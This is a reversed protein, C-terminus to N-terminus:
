HTTIPCLDLLIEQAGSGAAVIERIPTDANASELSFEAPDRTVRINFKLNDAVIETPFVKVSVM